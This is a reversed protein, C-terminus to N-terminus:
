FLHQQRLNLNHLHFIAVLKGVAGGVIKILFVPRFQEPAQPTKRPNLRHVLLYAEVRYDKIRIDHNGMHRMLIMRFPIEMNKLRFYRLADTEGFPKMMHIRHFKINRTIDIIQCLCLAKKRLAGDIRLATQVLHFLGGTDDAAARTHPAVAM